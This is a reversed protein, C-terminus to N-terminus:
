HLSDMNTQLRYPLLYSLYSHSIPFLFILHFVSMNKFIQLFSEYIMLDYACFSCDLLRLYMKKDFIIFSSM